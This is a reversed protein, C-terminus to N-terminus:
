SILGRDRLLRFMKHRFLLEARHEDVYPVPVWVGDPTWLGRSAIAHIAGSAGCILVQMGSSIGAKRLFHLALLGGYPIAAAERFTLNTPRPVLLGDAKMCKYEANAGARFPDMGFVADGERFATVGSGVRDIEGSVIIGLVPRRPRRYGFAVRAVFRLLPQGIALSRVFCDSYTVSTAWMRIRVQGRRPEPMPLEVPQLVEPPGYGTCVVARM